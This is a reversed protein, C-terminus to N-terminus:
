TAGDDYRIDRRVVPLLFIGRSERERKNQPLSFVNSSLGTVARVTRPSFSSGTFPLVYLLTTALFQDTLGDSVEVGPM